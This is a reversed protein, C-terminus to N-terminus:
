KQGDKGKDDDIKLRGNELWHEMRSVLEKVEERDLHHDVGVWLYSSGPRESSDKYDGVASSEQVLRTNILDHTYIPHKVIVFGKSTKTAKM